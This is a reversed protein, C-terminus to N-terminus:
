PSCADQRSLSVVAGLLVPMRGALHCGLVMSLLCRAQQAVGCRWPFCADQRSLSVGAGHLAPMKGAQEVVFLVFPVSAALSSLHPIHLIAEM